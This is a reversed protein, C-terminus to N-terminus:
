RIANAGDHCKRRVRAGGNRKTWSCRIRWSNCPVPSAAARALSVRLTTEPHFALTQAAVLRQSEEPLQACFLVPVVIPFHEQRRHSGIGVLRCIMSSHKGQAAGM